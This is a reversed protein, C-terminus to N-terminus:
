PSPHLLLFVLLLASVVGAALLLLLAFLLQLLVKRSLMHYQNVMCLAHLCIVALHLAQQWHHLAHTVNGHCCM